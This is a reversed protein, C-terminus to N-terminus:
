PQGLSEGVARRCASSATLQWWCLQLPRHEFTPRKMQLAPVEDRQEAPRSGRPRERRSRLLRALQRGDPVETAAPWYALACPDVCKQLSQAFETPDIAAGDRDLVAPALSAGLAIGLERVLEDPHLDIEDSSRCGIHREGCLM